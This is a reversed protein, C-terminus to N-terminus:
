NRCPADLYGDGQRQCSQCEPVQFEFSRRARGPYLRGICALVGQPCTTRVILSNNPEATMQDPEIPYVLALL